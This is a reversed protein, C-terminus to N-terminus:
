MISALGSFKIAGIVAIRQIRLQSLVADLHDRRMPAVSALRRRLIPGVIKKAKDLKDAENDEEFLKSIPELLGAVGHDNKLSEQGTPKKPERHQGDPKGNPDIFREERPVNGLGLGIPWNRAAGWVTWGPPLLLNQNENFAFGSESLVLGCPAL